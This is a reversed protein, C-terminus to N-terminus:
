RAKLDILKKLYHIEMRLRENEEEMPLSSERTKGANEHGRRDQLLDFTGSKRVREVWDLVSRRDRIDYEEALKAASQGEFYLEVVQKKLEFSYTRKKTGM